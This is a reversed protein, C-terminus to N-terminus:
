FAKGLLRRPVLEEREAGLNAITPAERNKKQKAEKSFSECWERKGDCIKM